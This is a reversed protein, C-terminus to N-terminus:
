IKLALYLNYLGQSILYACILALLVQGLKIATISGQKFLKEFNTNFIVYLSIFFSIVYLVMYIINDLSISGVVNFNIM